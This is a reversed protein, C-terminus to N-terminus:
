VQINSLTSTTKIIPSSCSQGQFNEAYCNLIWNSTEMTITADTFTTSLELNLLSQVLSPLSYNGLEKKQGMLIKQLSNMYGMLIHIVRKAEYEKAKLALPIMMEFLSTSKPICHLLYDPTWMALIMSLISIHSCNTSLTQAKQIEEEVNVKTKKLSKEDKEERKRKKTEKAITVKVAKTNPLIESDLFPQGCTIEEENESQNPSGDDLIMPERMKKSM